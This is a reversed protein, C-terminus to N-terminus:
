ILWTAIAWVAFIALAILTPIVLTKYNVIYYTPKPADIKEPKADAVALKHEDIPEVQEEVENFLNAKM